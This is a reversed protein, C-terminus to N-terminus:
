KLDLGVEVGGMMDVSFALYRSSIWCIINTEPSVPSGECLVVSRMSSITREWTM